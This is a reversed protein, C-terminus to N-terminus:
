KWHPFQPESLYIVSKPISISATSPKSVQDRFETSKAVICCGTYMKSIYLKLYTVIIYFLVLLLSSTLQIKFTNANRFFFSLELACLLINLYTALLLSFFLLVSLLLFMCLYFNIAPNISLFLSLLHFLNSATLPLLPSLILAAAREVEASLVTRRPNKLGTLPESKKYEQLWQQRYEQTLFKSKHADLRGSLLGPHAPLPSSPTHRLMLVAQPSAPLLAAPFVLALFIPSSLLGWGSPGM